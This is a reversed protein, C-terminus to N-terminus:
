TEMRDRYWELLHFHGDCSHSNDTVWRYHETLCHGLYSCKSCVPNSEVIERERSSWGIIDKFNDYETFRENDDQDFDLVAFRGSPTIYVHNDSFANYELSICKEIHQVNTFEFQKPMPSTIWLRIFDEYEVHSVNHTNAQNNSYPKIEVTKVNKLANLMMIMYEVNEQILQPSALLLVHIPKSITAMNMYVHEHRERVAFDYSVSLQVDPDLFCAPVRALNTIVNIQGTYYDHIAHKIDQIYDESLVGVEGGYLDVHGISAYQSVEHLM